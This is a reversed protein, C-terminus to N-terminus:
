AGEPERRSVRELMVVESSPTGIDAWGRKLYFAQAPTGRGTTLRLNKSGGESLWDVASDLLTTGLGRGEFDPEVFLAFVDRESCRAIAFAVIGDGREACWGRADESELMGALSDRTVGLAALEEESQHNDKVSTRVRFLEAADGAVARRFTASARTAIRRDTM